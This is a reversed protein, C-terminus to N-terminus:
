LAGALLLMVQQTDDKNVVFADAADKRMIFIKKAAVVKARGDGDQFCTCALRSVNTATIMCTRSRGLVTPQDSLPLQVEAYLAQLRLAM